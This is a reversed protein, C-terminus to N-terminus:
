NDLRIKKGTEESVIKGKNGESIKRKAEETHKKGKRVELGKKRNEPISWWLKSKESLLIKTEESLPKGWNPNKEGKQAESQKRKTEKSRKKGRNAESIKKGTEESVIKGKQFEGIKRKTEESVIRGSPGEGGDTLNVLPGTGLNTRGIKKILETELDFSKNETMNKEVKIILPLFGARKIKNIKRIKFTNRSKNLMAEKLHSLYQKNKGKGVYFPEYDFEYDGYKYKRPKRPDLYIYVYFPRYDSIM